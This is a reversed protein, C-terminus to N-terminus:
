SVIEYSVDDSLNYKQRGISTFYIIIIYSGRFIHGFFSIKKKYKKFVCIKSVRM